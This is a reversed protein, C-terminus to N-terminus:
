VKWQKLAKKRKILYDSFESVAEALLKIYKEDREVRVLYPMLMPHSSYYDCWQRDCVWMQGQIQPIVKTPCGKDYEKVLNKAKRNKIELLGDDGVLADPSCGVNEKVDLYVFGVQETTLGTQFEYALRASEELENGREMDASKYTETPQNALWDACLQDAYDKYSTSRKGTGTLIMGFKSASPKGLRLKHWADSGQIVDTVIIPM